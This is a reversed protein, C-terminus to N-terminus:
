NHGLKNMEYDTKLDTAEELALEGCLAIKNRNITDGDLLQKRRIGGRGKLGIKGATEGDFFAVCSDCQM